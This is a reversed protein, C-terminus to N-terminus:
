AVITLDAGTDLLAQLRIQHHGNDLIVTVVPRRNLPVTLLAMGGTSGFGRDGREAEVAPHMAATLVPVPVLQAIRSGTPIHMPPFDTQLVMQIVRTYDADIVGPFVFLGKLGSSSRGFLLTGQPQGNIMLPGRFTSPVKVPHRDILTVDVATALDLGLSG